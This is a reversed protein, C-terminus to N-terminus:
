NDQSMYSFRFDAAAAAPANTGLVQLGNPYLLVPKWGEDAVALQMGQADLWRFRYAIRRTDGSQNLVDVEMRWLDGSRACRLDLLKVDKAAAPSELKAALLDARSAFTRGLAPCGFSLAQPAPATAGPHSACGSALLVAAILAAAPLAARTRSVPMLVESM